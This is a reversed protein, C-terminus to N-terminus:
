EQIKYESLDPEVFVSDDVNDFEYYYEVVIDSKNGTEDQSTGQISRVMLGTEKEIYTEDLFSGNISYCQKGNYEESKIFSTASVQLLIWFNDDFNMSIIMIKSPIGNSDLMAIKDGNADIYTNTKEGEFYNTLKRVEGTDKLTTTLNLIAKDDKCYYETVTTTQITNNIIKEYHNQSDVYKSVKTELGRLIIMNRVTHIIFIIFIIGIIILIKKWIKMKKKEM